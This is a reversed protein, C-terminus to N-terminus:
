YGLDKVFKKVKSRYEVPTRIYLVTNECQSIYMYTDKTTLAYIQYNIMTNSLESSTIGKEEEFSNKNSEFMEKAHEVTDLEYFEIQWVSTACLGAKLIKDDEEFQDSVDMFNYNKEETLKQFDDMSVPDRKLSCGTLTIMILFLCLIFFKKKM